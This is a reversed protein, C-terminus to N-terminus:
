IDIISKEAPIKDERNFAKFFLRTAISKTMQPFFELLQDILPNLDEKADNSPVLTEAISEAECISECYNASFLQIALSHRPDIIKGSTSPQSKTKNAKKM